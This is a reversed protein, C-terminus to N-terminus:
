LICLEVMVREATAATRSGGPKQTLLGEVRVGTLGHIAGSPLWFNGLITPGPVYAVNDGHSLLFKAHADFQQAVPVVAQNLYQRSNFLSIGIVAILAAAGAAKPVRGGANASDFFRATFWALGFSLGAWPLLLYRDPEAIGPVEALPVLPALMLATVVPLLPGRTRGSVIGALIIALCLFVAPWYFSQFLLSPINLFAGAATRASQPDIQLIGAHGGFLSQLMHSRWFVYLAAVLAFPLAARLRAEVSGRPVFPLLLVLPVYTEKCTVALAYFFASAALRWAAPRGFHRTYLYLALLAFVLGEIYHRTMLQESIVVVPPGSLFAIAGLFAFEARMWQRGVLFLCISAAAIALHQHLYFWAPRLEFLRMDLEMSLLLWPFLNTISFQNYASADHFSAIAGHQFIQRLVQTDDWRWHGDLGERHLLYAPLAIAAAYLWDPNRAAMRSLPSPGNAPAVRSIM